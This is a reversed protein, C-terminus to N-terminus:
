GTVIKQENEKRQLKENMYLYTFTFNSFTLTLTLSTNARRGSLFIFIMQMLHLTLTTEIVCWCSPCISCFYAPLQKGDVQWHPCRDELLTWLWVLCTPSRRCGQLYGAATSWCMWSPAAAPTAACPTTSTSTLRALTWWRGASHLLNFSLHSPDLVYKAVFSSLHTFLVLHKWVIKDSRLGASISQLAPTNVWLLCLSCTCVRYLPSFHWGAAQWKTKSGAAM